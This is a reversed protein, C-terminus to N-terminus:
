EEAGRNLAARAPRWRRCWLRFRDLYLYVVPTTYLTLLQSLLLGGVISIGLPTRLEAGDGRGLALPLAGFLAALTTMMIPRFRLLCAQRIAQEPTMQQEREANLAFDIMMIANKKVIGILLLVGILAIVNFEGGTAIIALLAGVGASPLTSLITVPHVVSEYLMGLVIYVAILAALILLPQSDLSAQFTKASGQFSGHISSPLGVGALAQNIADTADSLAAGPPLNFSVTAAAFQSQHNVSLATNGPAWRAVASLPTPQGGPTQLFISDLGDPGQWYQPAVEMVVRYQNLANYITSVQRQGFADNLAADVQAQTLGLRAMADRDFVLTTQLGKVEQDTNVDALMPLKMLAQQVKPTWERLEALDDGQLTYQYQANSSRGGIRIDQVAQLFLQAGPERALTKRLRAIVQDSSEGRQSLPKLSVFMNASNRQGGGTFGLVADVAPDQSVVTIFRQLKQQMAQFSINQDARIMGNLRGTDQQPFFGKPVALYLYVNLGITAALILMMLPGHRLAWDLSRRYGDLMADFVRESWQFLRGPPREERPKLWRACLMPTTTLSVLLSVLIAVSLTVAFERFLRGIVGGMLLIPIFVAILSVSMSLVTFGVERAGRLAAQMPKMGDEIHRAINELVVITDDVVFGTAITLAMLSLNNLSFGALYMVSFAGVLSVPVTIAPIATARGNRLFLFVVLIVLAVSILLSREVEQLSARITPSRDMVVQMNIAAPISAQLQPLLAKVRDITEIINAGPQRFLMLMVAPQRGLLGANRLDVVSDKVEAVDAIRVAAGNKYSVILPLYDSAKTAQDNAQVQWHREDNELFGKPRNANTGAIAGRVTEMGIGYHNLQRPNLEVRVAPQAGGGVNVDGIGEVQALKQGLITDAADYMQGRSLSDSTLAIIMIPADAPNVKRYTPNSPMGTPLLSRAANIAAQVDRAAGDIDRDLEFQLTVRTSGLSSSSTMETVGAIRGLARELPTAVTAAMTEPSAGPLRASVSITPFDVQPLPSVPLLKFALLGALLIALTLLTTAVPRRM